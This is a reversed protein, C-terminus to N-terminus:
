LSTNRCEVTRILLLRRINDRFGNDDPPVVQDGVLFQQGNNNFDKSADRARALLWIRVMRINQVPVPTPLAAAGDEDDIRFDHKMDDNLDIAGNGDADLNTDLLNDNDSDVAWIINAGNRDLEGDGDLDYAYAFGIAEIGEALLPRPNLTGDDRALEFIGDNDEDFLRYAIREDALGNGSTAPNVPNWDYAITISPSGDVSAASATVNDTIDWRQVNFVGFIGAGLPDYGAIRIDREMLYMSGRLQQQMQSVQIISDSIRLHHIYTIVMALCFISTVFMAVMLEIMTFGGSAHSLFTRKKVNVPMMM